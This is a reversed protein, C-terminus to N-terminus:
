VRKADLVQTHIENYLRDATYHHNDMTPIHESLAEQLQVRTPAKTIALVEQVAIHMGGSWWQKNHSPEDRLQKIIHDFKKVLTDAIDKLDKVAKELSEVKAILAQLDTPPFNAQSAVTQASTGTPGGRPM